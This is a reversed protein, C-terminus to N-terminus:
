GRLAGVVLEAFRDSGGGGRIVAPSAGLVRLVLRRYNSRDLMGLALTVVDPPQRSWEVLREVTFIRALSILTKPSPIGLAICRRQLTREIIGMNVALQPVTCPAVALHLAHEFIAQAGPDVSERMRALLRHTVRADVSRLIASGIGDINDDIDPMLRTAFPFGNRGPVDQEASVSRGCWILPVTGWDFGALGGRDLLSGGNAGFRLDVLAPSGPHQSILDALERWSSAFHLSGTLPAAKGLSVATQIRKRLTNGEFLALM